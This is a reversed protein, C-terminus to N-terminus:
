QDDTSEDLRYGMGRVARIRAAGGLKARLRSVYQEVANPTLDDSWDAITSMLKDKSVMRGANLVLCELIAWERRTLGFPKGFASAQRHTLDIDLKGFTVRASAVANARRILARCRAILEPMAFPKTLYDDAGLDLATVRDSVGDRATLMLVPLTKGRNRVNQLLRLGSERPLGIDLVALDFSEAALATQAAEASGVLDAAFGAVGLAECVADGVLADDEVILVRMPAAYETAAEATSRHWGALKDRLAFSSGHTPVNFDQDLVSVFLQRAGTAPGRRREALLRRTFNEEAPRQTLFSDPERHVTTATSAVLM